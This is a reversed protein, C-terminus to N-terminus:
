IVAIYFAIIYVGMLLKTHYFDVELFLHEAFDTYNSPLQGIMLEAMIKALESM